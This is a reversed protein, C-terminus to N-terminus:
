KRLIKLCKGCTVMDVSDVCEAKLCQLGCLTKNNGNYFHETVGGGVSYKHIRKKGRDTRLKREM